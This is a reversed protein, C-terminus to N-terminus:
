SVRGILGIKEEEKEVEEETSEGERGETSETTFGPLTWRCHDPAFWQGAEM